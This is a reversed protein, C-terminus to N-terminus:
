VLPGAFSWGLSMEEFLHCPGAVSRGLHTEDMWHRPGSVGAGDLRLGSVGAWGLQMQGAELQLLPAFWRLRSFSTSASSSATVLSPFSTPSSPFTVPTVVTTLHSPNCYCPYLIATTSLPNCHHLTFLPLHNRKVLQKQSREIMYALQFADDINNIQHTLMQNQIEPRLGQKFQSLNQRSDEAGKCRIKLKEFKNMYEIVTMRGQRGAHLINNAMGLLTGQPRGISQVSNDEVNEEELAGSDKSDDAEAVQKGNGKTGSSTADGNVGAKAAMLENIKAELADVKEMTLNLLENRGRNTYRPQYNKVSRTMMPNPNKPYVGLIEKVIEFGLTEQVFIEPALCNTKTSEKVVYKLTISGLGLKTGETLIDGKVVATLYAERKSKDLEKSMEVDIENKQIDNIPNTKFVKSKELLALSTFM